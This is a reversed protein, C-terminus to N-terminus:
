TLIKIQMKISLSLVCKFGAGDCGCGADCVHGRGAGMLLVFGGLEQNM